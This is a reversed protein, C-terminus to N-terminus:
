IAKHNIYHQTFFNPIALTTLNPHIQNYTSVEPLISLQWIHDQSTKEVTDQQIKNISCSLHKGVKSFHWKCTRKTTSLLQCYLTGMPSVTLKIQDYSTGLTTHIYIKIIGDAGRPRNEYVFKPVCATKTAGLGFRGQFQDLYMIQFWRSYGLARQYWALVYVGICTDLQIIGLTKRSSIEQTSNRVPSKGSKM